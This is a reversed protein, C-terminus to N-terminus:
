TCADAQSTNAKHTSGARYEARQVGTLWSGVDIFVEDVFIRRHM